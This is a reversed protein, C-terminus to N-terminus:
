LKFRCIRSGQDYMPTELIFLIIDGSIYETVREKKRQDAKISPISSCKFSVLFWILVSEPMSKLSSCSFVVMIIKASMILLGELHTELFHLGQTIPTM